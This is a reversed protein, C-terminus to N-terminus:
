LGVAGGFLQGLHLSGEAVQRDLVVLHAGERWDVGEGVVIVRELLVALVILIGVLYMATSSQRSATSQEEVASTECFTGGANCM